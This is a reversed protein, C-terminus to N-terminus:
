DEKHILSVKFVSSRCAPSKRYWQLIELFCPM